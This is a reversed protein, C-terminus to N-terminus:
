SDKNDLDSIISIEDEIYENSLLVSISQPENKHVFLDYKKDSLEYRDVGEKILQRTQALLFANGKNHYTESIKYQNNALYPKWRLRKDNAGLFDIGTIVKHVHNKCLPSINNYRLRLISQLM